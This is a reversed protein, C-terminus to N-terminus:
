VAHRVNHHRSWTPQMAMGPSAEDFGELGSLITASRRFLRKQEEFLEVPDFSLRSVFLGVGTFRLGVANVAEALLM